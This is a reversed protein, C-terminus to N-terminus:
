FSDRNSVSSCSKDRTGSELSCTGALNATDLGSKMRWFLMVMKVKMPDWRSLTSELCLKRSTITGAMM